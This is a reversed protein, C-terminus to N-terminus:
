FLDRRSVQATDPLRWLTESLWAERDALAGPVGLAHDADYWFVGKPLPAAAILLAARDAPIYHDHAAYQFLFGQAKSRSLAAELDLDTDLRAAYGDPATKGLLYWESLTATGAMLVYWRPRADACALLAGAMAGFDHGVYAIRGPDVGPQAALADLARRLDAVQDLTARADADASKGITEFWGPASWMADVLLATAGRRALAIADPEFETHNTTRPDGLWHVFLVAPHPGPGAGTLIEGTVLHGTPSAFRVDRATVGPGLAREPGYEIAPPAAVFPHPTAECAPPPPQAAAAGAALVAALAVLATFPKLM